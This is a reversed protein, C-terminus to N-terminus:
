TRRQSNIWILGAYYMYIGLLKEQEFPDTEEELKAEIEAFKTKVNEFNM